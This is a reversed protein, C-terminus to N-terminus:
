QQRKEDEAAQVAVEIFVFGLCCPFLKGSQLKIESCRTISTHPKKLVLTKDILELTFDIPYYSGTNDQPRELWHSM